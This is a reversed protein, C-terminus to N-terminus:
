VRNCIVADEITMRVSSGKFARRMVGADISRAATADQM